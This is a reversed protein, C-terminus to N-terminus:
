AIEWAQAYEEPSYVTDELALYIEGDTWIMYEGTLYMDHVGTPQIWPMAWARKRSHYPKWVTRVDITWDTNVTSDHDMLCEYPAKDKTRIDGAKYAGPAWTRFLAACSAALTKDETLLSAETLYHQAFRVLAEIVDTM